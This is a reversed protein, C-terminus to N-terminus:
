SNNTAMYEEVLRLIEQDKYGCALEKMTEVFFSYKSDKLEIKKLHGLIGEMDGSMSFDHLITMEDYPPYVMNKKAEKSSVVSEKTFEHPLFKMVDSILENRSVPKRLYSDCLSLIVEEDKKMASATIAIIPIKSLTSDKKLMSSAEYGNLEPM